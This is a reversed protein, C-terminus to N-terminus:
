VIKMVIKVDKDTNMNIVIIPLQFSGFSVLVAILSQFILQSQSSHM